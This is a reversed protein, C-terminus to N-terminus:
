ADVSTAFGARQSKKDVEAALGARRPQACGRCNDRLVHCDGHNELTPKKHSFIFFLGLFIPNAGLIVRAGKTFQVEARAAAWSNDRLVHCDRLSGPRPFSDTFNLSGETRPRLM